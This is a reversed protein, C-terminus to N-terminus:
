WVHVWGNNGKVGNPLMAKTTATKLTHSTITIGMAIRSALAERETQSAAVALAKEHDTEM